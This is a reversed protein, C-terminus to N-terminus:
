IRSIRDSDFRGLWKHFGERSIVYRGRLKSMPLEGSQILSLAKGKSVGVIAMVQQLKLLVPWTEPNNKDFM